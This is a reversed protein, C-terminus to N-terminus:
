YSINLVILAKIRDKYDEKLRRVVRVSDCLDYVFRPASLKGAMLLESDPAHDLLFVCKLLYFLTQPGPFGAPIGASFSVTSRVACTSRTHAEAGRLLGPLTSM